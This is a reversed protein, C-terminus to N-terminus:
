RATVVVKPGAGARKALLLEIQWVDPTLRYLRGLRARAGHWFLDRAAAEDVRDKDIATHPRSAM